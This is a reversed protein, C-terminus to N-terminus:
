PGAPRAKARVVLYSGALLVAAGTWQWGNMWEDPWICISIVHTFLPSTLIMSGCIAAGLERQAYHFTVHALVIPVAASLITLLLVFPSVDFAGAPRGAVLAVLLLGAATWAAIAGFLPVPHINGVVHKGHVAYAAWAISAGILGLVALNIEPLLGQEPRDLLVGWVGLLGMLTGALFRPSRIVAREEHFILYSLLIVFVIQVKTILAASTATTHYLCTTWLVQMTVNSLALGGSVRVNRLIALYPRRWGALCIIAMIVAADFYRIFAQTYPDYAGSLYRILVPALGWAISATMIAAYGRAPSSM